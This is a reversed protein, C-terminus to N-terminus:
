GVSRNSRSTTFNHMISRSEAICRLARSSSRTRGRSATTAIKNVLQAVGVVSHDASTIPMCLINRTKFGTEEDVKSNFRPDSYPELINESVGTTAVHGAIGKSLPFRIEKQPVDTKQKEEETLDFVKSYLQEKDKDVLFVSCREAKCLGRALLMIKKVLEDIEVYEFITKALHLLTERQKNANVTREYLKANRLGISCLVLFNEFLGEDYSDFPKDGHKNAISAVAMIGEDKHQIPMSLMTKIRIGDGDHEPSFQPDTAADTLNVIEGTQAVHGHIGAGIPIRYVEDGMALGMTSSNPAVSNKRTRTDMVYSFLENNDKDVLFLTCREADLLKGVSQMIKMCLRPTDLEEHIDHAVELLAIRKAIEDDLSEQLKTKQIRLEAASTSMKRVNGTSASRQDSGRRLPALGDEDESDRRRPTSQGNLTPAVAMATGRPPDLQRAEVVHGSIWAQIDKTTAMESVVHTVLAPNAKLFAVVDDATVALRVPEVKAPAVSNHAQISSSNGM